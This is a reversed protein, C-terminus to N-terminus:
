HNFLFAPSNILAWTLDQAAILRNHKSQEASLQVDNRLRTLKRDVPRVQQMATLHNRLEVLKPDTPRPMKSDAVAKLKAQLQSDAKSYYELLKKKEAANRKELAKALINQIEQPHKDLTTPGTGNSVSLRFRGISHTNSNFQQKLVFTLITGQADAAVPSQIDFSAKHPKGIQPSVAWGEGSPKIKGDIATKVDYTNQSFDAQANFLTLKTKQDPKSKPAAYVEFENLVFNGDGSRGPGKKPLSDDTLVDLRVATIGKLNTQAVIQYDGKGNPGKALISLDKQLELTSKNTATLTEPKLPTWKTGTTEAKEWATIRAQVTKQYETLAKQLKATREKQEQNLWTERPAIATQFSTAAQQADQINKVRQNETQIINASLGKEYDALQKTLAQHESQIQQQILKVGAQKEEATAPRNLVRLFISDILTVDDKESQVLKSLANNPDSIANGVTPGSILAMVPGLEVGSSRECECPSERQARGFKALFDGKLKFGVDPLEAARTGAPVGPINSVSGTVRCLSDYLVEAPLRRAKAHSFNIKDDVNWKNSEVSLQYTRSQCVVRMLHRIDFDHSLFDATLRELLEPNSPPNGARIDDIPDILGTGTLYGWVRNAYAKAFYQNDRSTIWRALTERRSLDKEDAKFSAPYPFTPPATMGTREHIMEGEKKDFVVEFLPKRGEVATGGITRGKSEPANKLDFQAFFASTEYYQDQTWREFPHDHCKNCNFRISLFLHTTNEMTDEPTRHIKFYSASPVEKNSGSASLIQYAFQDYPVNAAVSKRIWDRFLKAGEPGLYKRNVQLLDAWKNTWHDVFEKSGLLRDILENRKIKSERKDALFAKVDDISPPLGSLDIFVRRMFEADTCLDSPLTKTKQLKQDVLKDIYNYVPLQKWVFESRDGMVTVTTAAYKGEYRALLPAEGRRLVEAIGGHYMKAIEINSCDIFSDSTVDRVEGNDYTALVRFQQLLGAKPVVPNEPTIKIRAVRPTEKKLPTGDKIWSSVIQYHADGAIAVQGGKHPVEAIAKLLILSQEPSALNVRRSKLDDTYARLDFLDDTGRLSLKFGDKGKNAGHCLGSNCGMKTFAPAVDRWYDPSYDSPFKAVTIKATAQVGHLSFSVDTTGPQLARVLGTPSVHVSDQTNLAVKVLRTLDTRAGSKTYGTVLFQVTDYKQAITAAAPQVELKVLPDSNSFEEKPLKQQKVDVVVLKTGQVVAKKQAVEPQSAQLPVPVFAKKLKGTQSEYLRVQGDQGATAIIEGQPHYCVTYLGTEPIKVESVLKVSKTRTEEILKKEDASRAAVRKNLIKVLDDPIKKEIDFSFVKLEGTHNLSSVAVLQKGNPHIDVGFIRGKLAPFSRVLNADDGIVRVSQRFVQYLKPVGDAGGVLITDQTPHRDIAALGGTLAKPTISTINDIFRQTKLEALKTTRDRSVSIIHSGDTSFVTDLVWDYHANQYFVEKGTEVEIARLTNDACGFALLKGDPSWSVGYLTDYTLPISKKLAQKAVDWIQIEGREAPTGGTVALYKGDPSFEVSEIRQSKGILRGVLKNGEAAHLLVEHFGAVALIKGDPSYALSTIVPPASYTPPNAKNFRYEIKKPSDNIAGQQIWTRILTIQDQSLPAKAKPMAAENDDPTIMEVLYSKEPQGPIIATTESEGGKLLHSFDTVVYSGEPNRPHHCGACQAQLIPRVQQYFSVKSQTAPPNAAFLSSCSLASFALAYFAFSRFKDFSM